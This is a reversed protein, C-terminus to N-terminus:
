LRTPPDSLKWIKSVNGRETRKPAGLGRTRVGPVGLLVPAPCRTNKSRNRSDPLLAAIQWRRARQHSFGLDSLTPIV